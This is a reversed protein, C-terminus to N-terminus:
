FLNKKVSSYAYETIIDRIHNSKKAIDQRIQYDIVKNNFNSIEKNDYNDNKPEFYAYFYNDVAELKVYYLGSYEYLAEQIAEKSFLASDV